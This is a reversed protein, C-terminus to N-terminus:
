GSGTSGPHASRTHTRSTADPALLAELIQRQDDSLLAAITDWLRQDALDRVRAVLSALVSVGPLLVKREILWAVAAGFLARPGDGTTWARADMWAVLDAELDNFQSWRRSPSGAPCRTM